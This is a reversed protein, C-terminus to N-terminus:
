TNARQFTLQFYCSESSPFFKLTGNSSDMMNKALTLGIGEDKGKSRTTFFPDYMRSRTELSPGPGTQFIKLRLYEGRNLEFDPLCNSNPQSFSEFALSVHDDPKNEWANKLFVHILDKFFEQYFAIKYDEDISFSVSLGPYKELIENKIEVMLPAINFFRIMARPSRCLSSVLNAYANLNDMGKMSSVLYKYNKAEHSSFMQAAEMNPLLVTLHNNFDHLFSSLTKKIGPTKYEINLFEQYELFNILPTVKATKEKPDFSILYYRTVLSTSFKICWDFPSNGDWRTEFVDFDTSSIWTQIDRSKKFENLIEDWQPHGSVVRQDDFTLTISQNGSM